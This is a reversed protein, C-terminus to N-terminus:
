SGRRHVRPSGIPGSRPFRKACVGLAKKATEAEEQTAGAVAVFRTMNTQGLLASRVLDHPDVLGHAIPAMAKAQCDFRELRIRQATTELAVFPFMTLGLIGLAIAAMAGLFLVVKKLM